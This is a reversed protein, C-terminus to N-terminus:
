KRDVNNVRMELVPFSFGRERGGANFL